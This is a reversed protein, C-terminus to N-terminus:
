HSIDFVTPYVAVNTELKTVVFDMEAGKHEPSSVRTRWILMTAPDIYFRVHDGTVQTTELLITWERGNWTESPLLELKVNRLTGIEGTSLQRPWDWFSLGEANVPLLRAAADFSFPITRDLGPLGSTRISTGDSVVTVTKGGTSPNGTVAARFREHTACVVDTHASAEGAPGKVKADVTYAASNLAKYANRMRALLAETQTDAESCVSLALILFSAFLLKMM